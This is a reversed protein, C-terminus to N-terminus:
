GSLCRKSVFLGLVLVRVPDGRSMEFPGLQVPKLLEFGLHQSVCVRRPAMGSRSRIESRYFQCEPEERRTNRGHLPDVDGFFM